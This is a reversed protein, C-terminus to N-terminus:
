GGRSEALREAAARGGDIDLYISVLAVLSEAWVAVQAFRLEIYGTSRILRGRQHVVSFTVGSGLDLVEELEAVLEDYSGFCDEAFEGIRARREYTGLGLQSVDWVADPAVFSSM